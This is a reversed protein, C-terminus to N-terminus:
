RPSGLDPIVPLGAKSRDKNFLLRAKRWRAYQERKAPATDEYDQLWFRYWDLTLHGFLRRQGVKTVVHDADPVFWTEAPKDLEKLGRTWLEGRTWMFVASHVFTLNVPPMFTESFSGDRLAETTVMEGRPRDDVYWFPRMSGTDGFVATTIPYDSHSLMRAIWPGTRSWGQIGIRNRDILGRRDLYDIAGEYGAQVAAPEKATSYAPDNNLDDGAQLVVFGNAALARAFYHFYLGSVTFKGPRLGHTQLVLPYKKDRQYDPPLFIEGTWKKGDKGSWGIEEAQGIAYDALWPNPDLVERRAGTLTDTAFLKPRQNISQDISLQVRAQLPNAPPPLASPRFATWSAGKRRYSARYQGVPSQFKTRVDFSVIQSTADWSVNAIAETGRALWGIRRYKLTARDIEVVSLQSARQVREKGSVGDLPELVGVALVKKGGDIWTVQGVLRLWPSTLLPRIGGTAFDVLAIKRYLFNRWPGPYTKDMTNFDRYETWWAAPWKNVMYERLAYRGDPSIGGTLPAMQELIDAYTTDTSPDESELSNTPRRVQAGVDYFVVPLAEQRNGSKLADLFTSTLLFGDRFSREFNTPLFELPKTTVALKNGDPTIDFWIVSNKPERTLQELSHKALDFRFVQAPGNGQGGIFAVRNGSLWRLGTIPSQTGASTMRAAVVPVVGTLLEGVPYILLESDYTATEPNGKTTVVAVQAGDPSMLWPHADTIIESASMYYPSLEITKYRIIDDITLTKRLGGETNSSGAVKADAPLATPAGNVLVSNRAPTNSSVVLALAAAAYKLGVCRSSRGTANVDNVITM